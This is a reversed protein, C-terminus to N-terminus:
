ANELAHLIELNVMTTMPDNKHPNSVVKARKSAGQQDLLPGM